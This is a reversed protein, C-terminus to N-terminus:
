LPGWVVPLHSAWGMAPPQECATYHLPCSEWPVSEGMSGDQLLSVMGLKVTEGSTRGLFGEECRLGQWPAVTEQCIHSKLQACWCPSCLWPDMLLSYFKFSQYYLPNTFILVLSVERLDNAPIYFFLIVVQSFAQYSSWLKFRYKGCSGAIGSKAFLSARSHQYCNQECSYFGPFLGLTSWCTSCLCASTYIDGDIFYQEVMSLLLSSDCLLTCSDWICKCVSLLCVCWVAHFYQYSTRSLVFRTQLSLFFVLIQRPVSNRCTHVIFSFSPIKPTISYELDKKKKSHETDENHHYNWLYTYKDLHSLSYM